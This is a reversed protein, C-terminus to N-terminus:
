RRVKSVPHFVHGTLFSIADDQGEHQGHICLIVNRGAQFSRQFGIFAVLCLSGHFFAPAMAVLEAVAEQQMAFFVAALGSWLNM